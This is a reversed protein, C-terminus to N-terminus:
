TMTTLSSASFCRTSLPTIASTARSPQQLGSPPVQQGFARVRTSGPKSGRVRGQLSHTCAHPCLHVCAFLQHRRKKVRRHMIIKGLLERRQCVFFQRTLNLF